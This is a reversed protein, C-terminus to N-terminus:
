PKVDPQTQSYAALLRTRVVPTLGSPFRSVLKLWPLTGRAMQGDEILVGRRSFQGVEIARTLVLVVRNSDSLLVLATDQVELLEGRVRGHRGGLRLDAAIGEPDTAPAFTGASPGVACGVFGLVAVPVILSRRM